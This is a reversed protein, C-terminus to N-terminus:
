SIRGPIVKIKGDDPTVSLYPQKFGDLLVSVELYAWPTTIDATDAAPIDIAIIGNEPDGQADSLNV